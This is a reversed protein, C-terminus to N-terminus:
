GWTDVLHRMISLNDGPSPLDVQAWNQQAEVLLQLTRQVVLLGVRGYQLAKGLGYISAMLSGGTGM